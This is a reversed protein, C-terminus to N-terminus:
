KTAIKESRSRHPECIKRKGAFDGTARRLRQAFNMQLPVDGAVM